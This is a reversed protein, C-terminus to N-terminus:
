KQAFYWYKKLSFHYKQIWKVWFASESDTMKGPKRWYKLLYKLIHRSFKASIGFIENKPCSEGHNRYKKTGILQNQDLSNLTPVPGSKNPDTGTPTPKASLNCSYSNLISSIIQTTLCLLSGKIYTVLSNNSFLKWKVM